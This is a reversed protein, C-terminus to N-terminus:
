EYWTPVIRPVFPLAALDCITQWRADPLPSFHDACHTPLLCLIEATMDCRARGAARMCTADPAIRQVAALAAPDDAPACFEVSGDNLCGADQAFTIRDVPCPPATMTAPVRPYPMVCAALILPLFGLLRFTRLM